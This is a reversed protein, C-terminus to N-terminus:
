LRLAIAEHDRRVGELFATFQDADSRKWRVMAGARAEEEFSSMLEQYAAELAAIRESRCEGDSPDCKTSRGCHAAEPAAENSREQFRGKRPRPGDQVLGEKSAM